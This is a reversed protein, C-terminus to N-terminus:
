RQAHQPPFPNPMRAKGGPLAPLTLAGRGAQFRSRLGAGNQLGQKLAAKTIVRGVRPRKRDEAQHPPLHNFAGSSIRMLSVSPTRDRREAALRIKRTEQRGGCSVGIEAGIPLKEPSVSTPVVVADPFM